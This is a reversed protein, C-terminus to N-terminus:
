LPTSYGMLDFYVKDSRFFGAEKISLNKDFHYYRTM